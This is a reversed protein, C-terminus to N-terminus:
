RGAAHAHVARLRKPEIRRAVLRQPQRLLHSALRQALAAFLQQDCSASLCKPMGCVTSASRPTARSLREVSRRAGGAASQRAEPRREGEVEEDRLRRARGAPATRRRSVAGGRGSARRVSRRDVAHAARRREVKLLGEREAIQRPPDGSRVMRAFIQKAATHSVVGDRVLCLLAALDAPRVTFHTSRSTRRRSRASCRAWCGTRRPRPTGARGPSTSSTTARDRPEATLLTSTTSADARRLASRYRTAGRRRFSPCSARSATSASSRSSRAAASRARPFISLRPEGGQPARASGSGRAEDWLM